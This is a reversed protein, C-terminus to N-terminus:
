RIGRSPAFKETKRGNWLISMVPSSICHWILHILNSDLGVEELTDRLFEWNLRDYVKELDVKIAM